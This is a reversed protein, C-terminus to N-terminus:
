PAWWVSVPVASQHLVARVPKEDVPGPQMAEGLVRAKGEGTILLAIERADLLAPRTLTIRAAGGGAPVVGRVCEGNPPDLAAALGDGGPFLSATHADEGMGLLVLDFPRPIAALKVATEALGDAPSKGRSKLGVLRARSARARLLTRKVMGENSAPDAPDVWREDSLTLVVRDWPLDVEALATYLDAPTTGGSLVLSCVGRAAVAAAIRSAVMDSVAAVLGPRDAFRHLVPATGAGSDPLESSRM